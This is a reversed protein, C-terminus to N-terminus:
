VEIGEGRVVHKRYQDPLSLLSLSGSLLEKQRGSIDIRNRILGTYLGARNINGILIAGVLRGNHIVLRRYTTAYRDMDVLIEYADADLQDDAVINGNGIAMGPVRNVEIANMAIGGVDPREVGVMHAGAIAGQRYANPWIAVTRNMDVVLDYAEAVDGEAYVNEASTQMFEDVVIGSNVSIGSEQALVANPRVGIGFVLMQADLYQGDKLVVGRMQGNVSDVTSVTNATLVSVGALELLDRIMEAGTTDFAASLIRPALELMTVRVGQKLLADTAKIGIMGGGIVLAHEVKGSQIRNIIGNVEDLRTFTFVGECDIGPVSPVIPSGGTCILLKDYAHREGDQTQITQAATDIGVVKQNLLPKVGHKTYFDPDRYLVRNSDVRGGLLNSLMPRSYIGHPEESFAWIESSQDYSRMTEV